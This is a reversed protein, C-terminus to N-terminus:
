INNPPNQLSDALACLMKLHSASDPSALMYVTSVNRCNWKVPKKLTIKALAPRLVLESKAHPIAIGPIIATTMIEERELIQAKFKEKDTINGAKKHLEALLDVADAMSAIEVDNKICSESLYANLNM